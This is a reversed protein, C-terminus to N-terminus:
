VFGGRRERGPIRRPSKPASAVIGPAVRWTLGPQDRRVTRGAARVCRHWSESRAVLSALPLLAAAAITVLPIAALAHTTATWTGGLALALLGSGALSGVGVLGTRRGLGAKTV